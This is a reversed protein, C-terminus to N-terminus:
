RSIRGTRKDVYVVYVQSKDSLGKVRYMSRGKRQVESIALIKGGFRKKVRAAAEDRSIERQQVRLIEPQWGRHEFAARAQLPSAGLCLLWAIVLLHPRFALRRLTM